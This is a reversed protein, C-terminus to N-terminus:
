QWWLIWKILLLLKHTRKWVSSDMCKILAKFASANANISCKRIHYHIICHKEHKLQTNHQCTLLLATMWIACIVTYTLHANCKIFYAYCQVEVFLVKFDNLLTFKLPYLLPHPNFLCSRSGTWVYGWLWQTFHGTTPVATPPSPFMLKLRDLCLTVTMLYLSRYYICCHTLISYVYGQAQGLM